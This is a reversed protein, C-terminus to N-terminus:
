RLLLNERLSLAAVVRTIRALYRSPRHERDLYPECLARLHPREGCSFAELQAFVARLQRLSGELAVAQEAAAEVSRSWLLWVGVYVALTIQWWPPLWGLLNAVLLAANLAVMAGFLVLWRGAAGSDDSAQLWEVLPNAKWTRRAGAAEMANLAMKDRFLHLPALERVVQQRRMALEPDPVPATLWARLRQSGEYSVATDLLHHVSRKGVLDLDAEFPHEPDPQHHFTSPIQTWALRARAAHAAKIQLWLRHREISRKVRRHAHVSVGFLLLWVLACLAAVWGETVFVAVGIVPPGACFVSIRVWSYRASARDLQELRRQLRAIQNNLARLRAEKM